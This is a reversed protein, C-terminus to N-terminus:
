QPQIYFKLFNILHNAIQKTDNSRMSLKFESFDEKFFEAEMMVLALLPKQV